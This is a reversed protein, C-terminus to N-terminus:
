TSHSHVWKQTSGLTARCSRSDVATIQDTDRGYQTVKVSEEEVKGKLVQTFTPISLGPFSIPHECLSFHPKLSSLLHAAPCILFNFPFAPTSSNLHPYLIPFSFPTCPWGFGQIYSFPLRNWSGALEYLENSSWILRFQFFLFFCFM